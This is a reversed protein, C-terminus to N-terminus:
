GVWGAERSRLVTRASLSGHIKVVLTNNDVRIQVHGNTSTGTNSKAYMHVRYWQGKNLSGSSPYSKGFTNGYQGPQDRHYVYPQFFVRSGTNYWMMRLSGGNGDWAADGGTNGEGISFGFGIKGGTSWDFQSHFRVDFDLEYAAGDTIDASAIVGGAGSLANKLLTIRCTGNSIYCRSENWGSINGFDSSAASTTYTGTARNDWNVSRQSYIARPTTANNDVVVQPEVLDEKCSFSVIALLMLAAQLMSRKSSKYKM